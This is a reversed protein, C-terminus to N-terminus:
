PFSMPVYSPEARDGSYRGLAVVPMGLSRRCLLGGILIDDLLYADQLFGELVREAVPLHAVPELIVIADDCPVLLDQAEHALCIGKGADPPLMEALFVIDPPTLHLVTSRRIEYAPVEERELSTHSM